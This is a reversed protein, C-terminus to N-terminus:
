VAVISDNGADTSQSSKEKAGSAKQTRQLKLNIIALIEEQDDETLNRYKSLMQTESTNLINGVIGFLLYDASIAFIECMKIVQELTPKSKKNKWDTLPSKKLDLKKGFENGTIGIKTCEASIRAYMEDM